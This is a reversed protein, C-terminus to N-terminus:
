CFVVSSSKDISCKRIRLMEFKWAQCTAGLVAQGEGLPNRHKPHRESLETVLRDSKLAEVTNCKIYCPPLVSSLTIVSYCHRMSLLMLSHRQRRSHTTFFPPPCISCQLREQVYVQNISQNIVANILYWLELTAYPGNVDIFWIHLM